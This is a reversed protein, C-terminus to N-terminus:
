LSASRGEARIADFAWAWRGPRADRAGPRQAHLEVGRIHRRQASTVDDEAENM